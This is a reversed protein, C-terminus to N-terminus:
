PTEDANLDWLDMLSQVRYEAAWGMDHEIGRLLGVVTSRWAKCHGSIPGSDENRGLVLGATWLPQVSHIRTGEDARGNAIAVIEKAHNRSQAIIAAYRTYRSKLSSGPALAGLCVPAAPNATSVHPKNHLLQIRAFHYWQRFAMLSWTGWRPCPFECQVPACPVPSGSKPRGSMTVPTSRRRSFDMRCVM